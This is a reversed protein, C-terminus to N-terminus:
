SNVLCKGRILLSIPKSAFNMRSVDTKSYDGRLHSITVAGDFVHCLPLTTKSLLHGSM